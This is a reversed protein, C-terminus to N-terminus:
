DQLAFQIMRIVQYWNHSSPHSSACLYIINLLQILILKMSLKIIKILQFSLIKNLREIFAYEM